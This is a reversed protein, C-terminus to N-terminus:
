DNPLPQEECSSCTNFCITTAVVLPAVHQEECSSCTNFRQKQARKRRQKANSRALPAHISVARHEHTHELALNSRALPAHISVVPSSSNYTGDHQEECSSCTNFSIRNATSSWCCDHQEECSSCTNFCFIVAICKVPSPQEECSSCTNFRHSTKVSLNGRQTAGRLLLMYQFSLSRSLDDVTRTAGRLLLM